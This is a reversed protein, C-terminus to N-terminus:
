HVLEQMLQPVDEPTPPAYDITRTVTDVVPCEFNRYESRSGRRGRERVIVISHLEQIFAETILSKTEAFEEVRELARWYNRVEQEAKTEQRDGAAIARRVAGEDLPNGKIQTSSRTSRQLADHRLRLSTDPPLPLVEVVSRAGEIAGLNKVLSHSYTYCPNFIM